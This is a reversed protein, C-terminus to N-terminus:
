CVRYVFDLEAAQDDTLDLDDGNGLTAFTTVSGDPNSHELLVGFPAARDAVSLIRGRWEDPISIVGCQRSAVVDGVGGHQAYLCVWGPGCDWDLPARSAARAPGPVVLLAVAALTAAGLAAPKRM